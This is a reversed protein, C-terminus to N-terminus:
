HIIEIYISEKSYTFFSCTNPYNQFDLFEDVSWLSLIFLMTKLVKRRLNEIVGWTGEGM